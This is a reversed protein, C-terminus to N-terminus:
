QKSIDLTCRNMPLMLYKSLYSIAKLLPLLSYPSERRLIPNMIFLSTDLFFQLCPKSHLIENYIDSSM